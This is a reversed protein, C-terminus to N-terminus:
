IVLLVLAAIRGASREAPGEALILRRSSRLDADAVAAVAARIDATL